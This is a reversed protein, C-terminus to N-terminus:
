RDTARNVELALRGLEAADAGGHHQSLYVFLDAARRSQEPDLCLPRAGGASGVRALVDLSGDHIVQRVVLARFHALARVDTPDADIADATSHLLSRMAEINAIAHGLDAEVHPNPDTSISKRLSEVLGVAGGYWCAAVGAAGFWFGPRNLFFGPGGVEYEDAIIPGEFDLTHSLSDAMGVAPWSDEHVNSVHESVKVDFIRYGDPTEATVLAREIISSGSCFAKSGSLRWGGSTRKAVTTTGPSRAAWVGYTSHKTAPLKAAEALIAIADSHGEVLRGVSLDHAAWKALVEFRCWTKGSGPLPLMEIDTRVFEELDRQAKSCNV